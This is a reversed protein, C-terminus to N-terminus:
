LTLFLPAFDCNFYQVLVLVYNERYIYLFLLVNTSISPYFSSLVLWPYIRMRKTKMSVLGHISHLASIRGATRCDSDLTSYCYEDIRVYGRDM